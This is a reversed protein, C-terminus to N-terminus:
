KKYIVKFTTPINQKIRAKISADIWKDSFPVIKVFQRSSNIDRGYKYLYPFEGNTDIKNSVLYPNPISIFFESNKYNDAGWLNDKALCNYLDCALSQAPDIFSIDEPIIKNYKEELQKLFMLHNGLENVFFPYHTCGLIIPNLVKDPSEEVTKVVLHTVCYKIYNNVSNLQVKVMEGKENKEILLCNGEDFNYATWLNTDIPFQPHNLEPGKYNEDGRVANVAPDIYNLDGDIAGALGIGAQQVIHINNGPFKQEANNKIYAPYGGSACTGETALVGIVANKEEGPKLKSLVSKAGADIIGLIPINLGWSNVADRVTELGYATATNCAIVIVKVPAKDSKILSNEPSLYYNKDLLFRVDKIILERLFDAKGEANYKGYPMNAEDALYIFREAEFDPLSDAGEQHTINNFQNQELISNLVSLGGTGSDFIGVPLLNRKSPYKKIDIFFPSDRDTKVESVIKFKETVPHNNRKCGPALVVLLLTAVSFIRIQKELM